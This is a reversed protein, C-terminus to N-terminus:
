QKIEQNVKSDCLGYLYYLAYIKVTVCTYLIICDNKGKCLFLNIAQAQKESRTVVAIYPTGIELYMKLPGLNKNEM